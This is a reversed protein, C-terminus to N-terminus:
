AGRILLVAGPRSIGAFYDACIQDAGTILVGHRPELEICVLGYGPHREFFKAALSEDDASGSIAQAMEGRTLNCFVVTANEDSLNIAICDDSAREPQMPRNLALPSSRSPIMFADCRCEAPLRVQKFRLFELVAEVFDRYDNQNVAGAPAAGGSIDAGAERWRKLLHAPIELLGTSVGETGACKSLLDEESKSLPRRGGEPVNECGPEAAPVALTLAEGRLLTERFGPVVSVSIGSRLEVHRETM